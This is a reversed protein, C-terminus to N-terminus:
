TLAPSTITGRLNYPRTGPPHPLLNLFPGLRMRAQPTTVLTFHLALASDRLDPALRVDGSLSIMLDGGSTKLSEIRLVGSSLTASLNLDGLRFIGLPGSIHAMVNSADLHLTGSDLVLDDPMVLASGTADAAGALAAGLAHLMELEALNIGNASFNLATATGSRHANLRIKGGYAAASARIGPKLMLMSLIAPAIRISSSEFVPLAGPADPIIRVEQLKAGIPLALEQRQADMKLGMPALAASFADVYPFNAFLFVLFLVVGVAIYAAQLRHAKWYALTLREYLNAM